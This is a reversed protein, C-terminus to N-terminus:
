SRGTRPNLTAAKSMGSDHISLGKSLMNPKPGAPGTFPASFGWLSMNYFSLKIIYSRSSSPQLPIEPACCHFFTAPKRQELCCSHTLDWLPSSEADFYWQSNSSPHQRREKVAESTSLRDHAKKNREKTSKNQSDVFQTDLRIHVGVRPENEGGRRHM